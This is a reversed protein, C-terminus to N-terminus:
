VGNSARVEFEMPREFRLSWQVSSGGVGNSARVELEMPREFRLIWFDVEGRVVSSSLAIDWLGNTTGTANPHPGNEAEIKKTPPDSEKLITPVPVKPNKSHIAQIKPSKKAVRRLKEESNIGHSPEMIQLEKVLSLQVDEQNSPRAVHVGIGTLSTSASFSTFGERLKSAQAEHSQLISVAFVLL